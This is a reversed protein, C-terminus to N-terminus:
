RARYPETIPVRFTSHGYGLTGSIPFPQVVRIRFPNRSSKWLRERVNGVGPVYVGNGGNGFFPFPNFKFCDPTM